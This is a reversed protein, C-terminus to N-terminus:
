RADIENSYGYGHRCMQGPYALLWTTLLKLFVLEGGENTRGEDGDKNTFDNWCMCVGVIPHCSMGRTSVYMQTRIQRPVM